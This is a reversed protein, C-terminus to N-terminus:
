KLYKKIEKTIVKYGDDTLHLGDRTYDNKIVVEDSDPDCLLSFTDIFTIKEKKCFKELKENISMIEENTRSKSGDMDEDVPYIAELYLEAYPRHERINLLIKQINEVIDKEAVGLQIDNTGILLFVKSPNYQYVRENLNSLIENTLNGDVGSNVVPLGKYYKELDYFDTISDGLFLYNDDVVTVEQVVKKFDSPGFLLYIIIGVCVILLILSIFFLYYIGNSRHLKKKKDKVQKKEYSHNLDAIIKDKKKKKNEVFSTDLEDSFKMEDFDFVQQKTINYDEESKSSRGERAYSSSNSRKQHYNKSRYKNSYNNTRRKYNSNKQNYNM